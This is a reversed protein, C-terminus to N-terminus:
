TDYIEAIWVGFVVVVVVKVSERWGIEKGPSRGNFWLYWSKGVCFYM